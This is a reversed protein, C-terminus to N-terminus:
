YIDANTKPNLSEDFSEIPVRKGDKAGVLIIRMVNRDNADNQGPPPPGPQEGM